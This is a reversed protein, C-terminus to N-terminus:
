TNTYECHPPLGHRPITCVVRTWADNLFCGLVALLLVPKRGIRDALAGHPIALLMGSSLDTGQIEYHVCMLVLFAVVFGAFDGAFGEM